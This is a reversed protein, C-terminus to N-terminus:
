SAKGCNITVGLQTTNTFSTDTLTSQGTATSQSVFVNNAGAAATVQVAGTLGTMNALTVPVSGSALSACTYPLGAIRALGTSTGKATLVISAQATFGGNPTRQITGNQQSYTVGVSANGFSITPTWARGPDSSMYVNGTATDTLTGFNGTLNLNTWQGTISWGQFFTNNTLHANANTSGATMTLPNYFWNDAIFPGFFFANNSINLTFPATQVQNGVITLGAGNGWTVAPDVNFFPMSKSGDELFNDGILKIEPFVPVTNDICFFGRTASGTYNSGALVEVHSNVIRNGGWVGTPSAQFNGWRFACGVTKNGPNIQVSDIVLTNPGGGAGGGTTQTAYYFDDASNYDTGGGGGWRGGLFYLEPVGDNVVYHKQCRSLVTNISRLALPGLATSPGFKSCTDFNDIMVNTMILNFGGAWQLGTSGAVPTAGSGTITLNEIQTAYKDSNRVAICNQAAQNNCKILSSGSFGLANNNPAWLTGRLCGSVTITGAAYFGNQTAPILVCDPANALANNICATQDTVGDAVCGFARVDIGAGGFGTFVGGSATGFPMWRGQNDLLDFEQPSSQPLTSVNAPQRQQAQAATALLLALLALLLRM